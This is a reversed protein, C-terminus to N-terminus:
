GLGQLERMVESAFAPMPQMWKLCWGQLESSSRYGHVVM